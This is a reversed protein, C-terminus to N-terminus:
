NLFHGFFIALAILVWFIGFVSSGTGSPNPIYIPYDCIPKDKVATQKIRGKIILAIGSIAFIAPFIWWPIHLDLGINM